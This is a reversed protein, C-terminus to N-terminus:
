VCRSTYLLCANTLGRDLLEQAYSAALDRRDVMVYHVFLTLLESDAPRQRAEGAPAAAAANQALVPSIALGAMGALAAAVSLRRFAPVISIDLLGVPLEERPLSRGVGWWLSTARASLLGETPSLM